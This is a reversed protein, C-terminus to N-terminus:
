YDPAADGPPLTLEPHIVQALAALGEALRPGPRTVIVDDIPRVADDQVATMQAWGGSRAKVQEPTVGYNADGLVIVEPDADVLRELSISFANPDGTTIPAGGALEVMDALFSEDAPGYIEPESGIQYFVRPRTGLGGAAETITEIREAMRQTMVAAADEAAIAEGILRIDALVEDVTAAYVVLVPIELERLREIDAPPTFANGAALVLDPELDVVQEIVVGQFTAVDPLDVAEPPFDDFDTGGVLKDGEGLAFVIETNAPSLSIVREPEEELTIQTGEDDTITRPFATGDPSPSASLESAPNESTGATGTAPPTPTASPAPTAPGTCAGLVLMLSAAAILVRRISM